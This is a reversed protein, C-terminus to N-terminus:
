IIYSIGMVRIERIDHCRTMYYYLNLTHRGDDDDTMQRRNDTGILSGLLYMLVNCYYKKSHAHSQLVLRCTVRRPVVVTVPLVVVALPLVAVLSVVVALTLLAVPLVVVTVPPIVVRCLSPSPRYSSAACRRRRAVLHRAACHRCPAAHCRAVHHRCRAASRCAARCCPLVFAVPSVIVHCSSPPTSKGFAHLNLIVKCQLFFLYSKAQNWLLAFCIVYGGNTSLVIVTSDLPTWLAMVFTM